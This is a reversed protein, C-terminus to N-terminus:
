ESGKCGWLCKASDLALWYYDRDVGEAIGKKAALAKLDEKFHDLQHVQSCLVSMLLISILYTM